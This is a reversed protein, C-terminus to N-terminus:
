GVMAQAMRYEIIKRDPEFPTLEDLGLSKVAIHVLESEGKDTQEGQQELYFEGAELLCRKPIMGVLESGTVRMGRERSAKRIAEFAVHVPTTQIDILNTSVQAIEYEEMYWGIAKVAKCRGAERFTQGGRKVKRGSERVDAAVAKALKASRTNLNVNYAILFDRAGIVTQGSQAHFAQPGFDPKWEELLIKERFGEYEGARITALNRRQPVTAANEYLYVPIGLEEGVREALQGALVVVESMEIGSIPILPCVDTAGMRPHEGEHQRMDILESAEKIALFAAEIVAQPEGVFTIVTRNASAGPDVDLLSVGSVSQIRDAIKRILRHDRGESFNPVCELLSPM